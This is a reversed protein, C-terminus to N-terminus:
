ALEESLRKCEIKIVYRGGPNNYTRCFSQVYYTKGSAIDATIGVSEHQRMRKGNLQWAFVHKGVPLTVSFFSGQRLLCIFISDIFVNTRKGDVPSEMFYVVGSDKQAVAELKIASMFFMALLLTTFKKNRM